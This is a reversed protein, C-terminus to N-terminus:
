GCAASASRKARWTSGFIDGVRDGREVIVFDEVGSEALKIATGIGSFGAGVIITDHIHAAM